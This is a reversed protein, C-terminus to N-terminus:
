SRDELTGVDTKLNDIQLQLKSKVAALEKELECIRRTLKENQQQINDFEEALIQFAEHIRKTKM